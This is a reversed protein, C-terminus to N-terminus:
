LNEQEFRGFSSKRRLITIPTQEKLLCFVYKENNKLRNRRSIRGPKRWNIIELTLYDVYVKLYGLMTVFRLGVGM